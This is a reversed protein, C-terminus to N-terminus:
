GESPSLGTAALPKEIWLYSSTLEVSDLTATDLVIGSPTLDPAPLRLDITTPVLDDDKKAMFKVRTISWEITDAPLLPKFYQGWWPGPSTVLANDFEADRQWVLWLGATGSSYTTDSVDFKLIDDIYCKINTGSVAVKFTYWANVDDVWGPASGFNPVPPALNFGTGAVYKQLVCDWSTGGFEQSFVYYNNSDQIRFTLGSVDNDIPSKIDASFIYDAWAAGADISYHALVNITDPTTLVGGTEVLTDLAISTWGTIVADDFDDFFLTGSFHVHADALNTSSDYSMLELEVSEVETTLGETVTITDYELGFDVVSDIVSVIPGGNYQRTLPDGATGSWEYRITEDVTDGDRDAVTFEVLTPTRQTFALAFQLETVLDEAAKGSSLFVNTQDEGYPIAKSALVVASGVAVLLISTIALSLTLEILTFAGRPRAPQDRRPTSM